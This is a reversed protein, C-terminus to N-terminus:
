LIEFVITIKEELFIQKVQYRDFETKELVADQIIPTNQSFKKMSFDTTEFFRDKNSVVKIVNGLKRKLTLAINQANEIADNVALQKLKKRSKKELKESLKTQFSIDLDEFNNEQITRYFADILQTNLTFTLELSNTGSYIKNDKHSNYNRINSEYAYIDFKDIKIYSSDLGIKLLAKNLKEIEKNLKGIVDSEITDTKRIKIDIIAIDPTIAIKSDGESFLENKNQSFTFISFCLFVFFLISTKM